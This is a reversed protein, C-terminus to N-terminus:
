AADKRTQYTQGSQVHVASKGTVAEWREIMADCTEPDPDFCAARRQTQSAAILAAGNSEGAFPDVFWGGMPVHNRVPQVFSQLPTEARSAWVTTQKRGGAWAPGGAKACYLGLVHSPAFGAKRPPEATPVVIQARIDMKAAVAANAAVHSRLGTAWLYAIKAPITDLVATLSEAKLAKPVETVVLLCAPPIMAEITAPDGGDACALVSPGLQWLDGAQVVPFSEEPDAEEPPPGFEPLDFATLSVDFDALALFRLEEDLVDKDWSSGVEGLRNDSIILARKEFDNLDSRQVTPVTTLGLTKAAELRGHGILVVGGEDIVLPQTWGWETIARALARVQEASHTRSNQPHPRLSEIPTDTIIM